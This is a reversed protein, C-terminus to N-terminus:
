QSPRRDVARYLFRWQATSSVDARLTICAVPLERITPYLRGRFTISGDRHVTGVVGSQRASSDAFSLIRSSMLTVLPVELLDVKRELVKKRSVMMSPM